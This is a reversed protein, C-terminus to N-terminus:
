DCQKQRKLLYLFILHNVFHSFELANKEEAFHSNHVLNCSLVLATFVDAANEDTLQVSGDSLVGEIADCFSLSLDTLDNKKKM